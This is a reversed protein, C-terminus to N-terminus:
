HKSSYEQDSCDKQNFDHIWNSVEFFRGEETCEYALNVLCNSFHLHAVRRLKLGQCLCPEGYQIKAVGDCVLVCARTRMMNFQIKPMRHSFPRFTPELNFWHEGHWQRIICTCICYFICRDVKLKYSRRTIKNTILDFHNNMKGTKQSSINM